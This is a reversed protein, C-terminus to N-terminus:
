DQYGARKGATDIRNRCYRCYRRCTGVASCTRRLRRDQRYRGRHRAQQLLRPDRGSVQYRHRAPRYSPADLDTEPRAALAFRCKGFGLDLVEYFSKGLEMITDKGVIGLECVGREVYTIVDPAKALVASLPVVSPDTHPVDLLLKRGPDRLASVDYGAKEFLEVSKQELRGKTLAIKLPEM